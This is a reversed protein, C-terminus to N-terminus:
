SRSPSECDAAAWTVAAFASAPLYRRLRVRLMGAVAPVFPRVPGVYRAIVVAGAGHRRFLREGRDLWQPYRRFPWHERLRYGWRHGVWYSLGDGAFAGLAASALAYSGNIHGTGVLVGVAFLLPLAPVVMGVVALADGFAILFVLGGAAVPHASIWAISSDIDISAM